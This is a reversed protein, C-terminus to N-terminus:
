HLRIPRGGLARTRALSFYHATFPKRSGPANSFGVEDTLETDFWVLLGHGIGAREITWNLTGRCQCRGRDCLGAHVLAAAKDAVPGSYVPGQQFDNVALRRAPSLDQGFLEEGLM